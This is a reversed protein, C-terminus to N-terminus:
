GHGRHNDGTDVLFYLLQEGLPMAEAENKIVNRLNAFFRLSIKEAGKKEKHLMVNIGNIRLNKM